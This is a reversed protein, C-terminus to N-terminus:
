KINSYTGKKPNFLLRKGKFTHPQDVHILISRGTGQCAEKPYINWSGVTSQIYSTPPVHSDTYAKLFTLIM